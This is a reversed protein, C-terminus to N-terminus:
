LLMRCYLLVQNPALVHAPISRIIFNVLLLTPALSGNININRFWM